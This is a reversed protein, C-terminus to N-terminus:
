GSYPHMKNFYDKEAQTKEYAPNRMDRLFEADTRVAGTGSPNRGVSFAQAPMAQQKKSEALEAQLRANERALPSQNSTGAMTKVEDATRASALIRKADVTTIEGAELRDLIASSIADRQMLSSQFGQMMRAVRQAIPAAQEPALAQDGTTLSQYMSRQSNGIVDSNLRQVRELELQDAEVLRQRVEEPLAATETGAAEAAAAAEAATAAEAAAADEVPAEGEQPTRPPPGAPTQPDAAVQGPVPQQTGIGGDLLGPQTDQPITHQTTM